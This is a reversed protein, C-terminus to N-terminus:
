DEPPRTLSAPDDPARSPDAAGRSITGASRALSKYYLTSRDARHGLYEGVLQVQQGNQLERVAFTNRLTRAGRRPIHDPDVGADGLVRAVQRYITAAHLEGGILKAPFLLDGQLGYVARNDRWTALIGAAPPAIRTRHSRGAGVKPVDVFLSGDAQRSGIAQVRLRVLESVKLGGGLVAAILARTREAKWNGRPLAELVAAQEAESLWMTRDNREGSRSPESIALGRAPNGHVLGIRILHDFLRELLRLYRNRIGKQLKNAVLFGRIDDHTISGWEKSPPSGSAEGLLICRIFKGGMARYVAASSARLPQQAGKRNSVFAPDLLWASFAEM